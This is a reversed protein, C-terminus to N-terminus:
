PSVFRCTALCTALCSSACNAQHRGIMRAANDRPSIPFDILNHGFQKIPKMDVKIRIAGRVTGVLPAGGRRMPMSGQAGLAALPKSEPSRAGMVGRGKPASPYSGRGRPDRPLSRRDRPALRTGQSAWAVSLPRLPALPEDGLRRLLGLGVHQDPRTAARCEPMYRPRSPRVARQDLHANCLFSWRLGSPTRVLHATKM